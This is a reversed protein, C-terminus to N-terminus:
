YLLPATVFRSCALLRLPSTLRNVSWLDNVTLMKAIAGSHSSDKNIAIGDVKRLEHM